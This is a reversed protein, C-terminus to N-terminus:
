DANGLCLRITRDFEKLTFPKQLFFEGSDLIGELEIVEATYGSM